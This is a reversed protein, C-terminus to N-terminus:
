DNKRAAYLVANKDTRWFYINEFEPLISLGDSAKALEDGSTAFQCLFNRTNLPNRKILLGGINQGKQIKGNWMAKGPEISLTLLYRLDHTVNLQDYRGLFLVNSTKIKIETLDRDRLLELKAFPAISHAISEIYAQSFAPDKPDSAYVVTMVGSFAHLNFLTFPNSTTLGNRLCTQDPDLAISDPKWSTHIDFTKEKSMLPTSIGTENTENRVKIPAQIWFTHDSQSLTGHIDWGGQVPLTRINSIQLSPLKNTQIWNTFFGAWKTGCVKEVSKEFDIWDAMHDWTGTHLFLRMAAFINKIGIMQQLTILVLSGRGYGVASDSPNMADHANQLTHDPASGSIDRIYQTPSYEDIGNQGTMRQHMVDTYEAFSENWMSRTYPNPLIGGWWTHSVEHPIAIPIMFKNVITFSYGELAAPFTNSEVVTYRKYPFPSLNKGCWQIMKGAANLAKDALHISDPHLWVYIPIHDFTQKKEIYKGAAFSFYSVPLRNSWVYREEQGVRKHSLLNGQTIAKWGEPVYIITDAYSPLRSIHPYWYGTMAAEDSRIYDEQSTNLTGSYTMQVEARHQQLPPLIVFGGSQQFPITHNSLRVNQVHYICNLRVILPVLIGPKAMKEVRM